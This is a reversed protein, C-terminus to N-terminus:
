FSNLADSMIAYALDSFLPFSFFALFPTFNPLDFRDACVGSSYEEYAVEKSLRSKSSKQNRLVNAGQNVGTEFCIFEENLRLVLM